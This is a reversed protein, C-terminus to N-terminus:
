APELTRKESEPRQEQRSLEGLVDQIANTVLDPEDLLIWHGSGTADIQRGRNSRAAIRIHEERYAASQSAATIVVVPVTPGLAHCAAVESASRRLGALHEAMSKFCKPQSWHAQVAPWTEAPLKQVQGALRSLVLAADAGFLRSVRKPVRTKGRVLLTLCARVGGVGALVAGVRSLFVGGNLRWRERRPLEIWEAPYIPDVLVLAAVNSPHRNAYAQLVFAGYSHSVFVFPGSLTMASILRALEEACRTATIKGPAPDSWALGSRDYSVTRAFAAVRAQVHAWSLSSASIGAEFIVTRQGEGLSYAHIRHGDGIDILRGPPPVDLSDRKTGRQQYVVGTAILVTLVGAVLAAVFM